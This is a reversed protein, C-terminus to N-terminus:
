GARELIRAAEAGYDRSAGFGGHQYEDFSSYTRTLHPGDDEPEPPPAPVTRPKPKTAESLRHAVLLAARRLFESPTIRERLAAAEVVEREADSLRLSVVSRATPIGKSM